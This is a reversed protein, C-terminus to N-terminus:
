TRPCGGDAGRRFTRLAASVRSSTLSERRTRRESFRELAADTLSALTRGVCSFVHGSQQLIKAVCETQHRLTRAEGGNCNQRQSEADARVGGDEGHHVGNQKARESKSIGGAQHQHGFFASEGGNGSGKLVINVPAILAM